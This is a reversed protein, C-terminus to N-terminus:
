HKLFEHEVKEFNVTAAILDENLQANSLLAGTLTSKAVPSSVWAPDLLKGTAAAQMFASAIPSNRVVIHVEKGNRDWNVSDLPIVGLDGLQCTTNTATDEPAKPDRALIGSVARNGAGRQLALVADAPAPAPAAARGARQEDRDDQRVRHARM